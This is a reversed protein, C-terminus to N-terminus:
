PLIFKITWPTYNIAKYSGGISRIYEFAEDLVASHCSYEPAKVIVSKANEKIDLKHPNNAIIKAYLDNHKM